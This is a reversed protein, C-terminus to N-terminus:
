AEAGGAVPRPPLAALTQRLLGFVERADAIREFGVRRRETWAESDRFGHRGNGRKHRAAPHRIQQDIFWVTGGTATEELLPAMDPELPHRQLSRKERTETAIFAARDTLTYQTGRRRRADALIRGAVLHWGVWFFPLGFLFFVPPPGGPGSQGAQVLWFLAFGGIGLGVVSRPDALRHWDAAPDPRGQWLIREGPALLGEWGEPIDEEASM